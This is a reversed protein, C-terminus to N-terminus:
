ESALAKKIRCKSNMLDGEDNIVMMGFECKLGAGWTM